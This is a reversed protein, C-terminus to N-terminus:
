LSFGSYVLKCSMKLEFPPFRVHSAAQALRQRDGRSRPTVRATVGTPWVSPWSPLSGRGRGDVRSAHRGAHLLASRQQGFSDAAPPSDPTARGRRRQMRRRPRGQRWVREVPGRWLARRRRCGCLSVVTAGGQLAVTTDDICVVPPAAVAATASAVAAAAAVVTVLPPPQRSSAVLAALAAATAGSRWQKWVSGRRPRSLVQGRSYGVCTTVPMPAVGAPLAM